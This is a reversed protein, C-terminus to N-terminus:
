ASVRIHQPPLGAQHRQYIQTYAAELHRAFLATDFLPTTLRNRALKARIESLRQANTALEVALAEYAEQTDTVLEPLGIAKLVSAAVRGAFSEGIRTLVPLGTWLADSATTGANYPLTDLFLDAARYRALYEPAPLRAGFVLRNADVGRAAAEKRLNVAALPHDAYLLLVSGPVRKLIRMWGDFTAPTIKFNNNFCCYVFGEQPLGLEARTYAKDAIRRKSDNAQYSPLCVIKEAYHKQLEEPIITPDAILYDMYPAGMTGLYGIYSAQVPAAQLAFIGTRSDQTYGGLDIAIDLELTRALQAVALDNQDSVDIFRDFATAVRKQMADGDDRFFSFAYLEFKSKDHREYLEATLFSVAHSRFDASFYGVRIRDHAPRRPIEPLEHHAPFKERAWIEAARRHLRPSDHMAHVAFPTATTESRDVRLALEAFDADIGSWDCIQMKTLLRTGYLFPYDPQLALASDYSALAEPMRKLNTLANGLNNYAQAHNPKLTIARGYNACAAEERKLEHLVKGCNYYAEAYDPKLAIALGYSELAAAHRMLQLLANGRNNYADFYDPKLATALRYSALAADPRQLELLANGRNYHADAYDPKLAITREYSELAAASRGLQALVIGRNNAADVSDPKLALAREYSDRAAAFGELDFLANGRNICAEAYDPRVALARAYSALAAEPQQLARLAVGRGNHAEAYDPMLALAREYSGLALQPLKLGRLATALNFHADAYYPNLEIAREYSNRAAAAQGLERLALGRGNCAAAYDPQLALARAYSHLAADHRGLECLVNGLNNYPEAVEPQLEIARQYRPLAAQPNGLARLVVGLNNHVDAHNPNVAVARSLLAVAEGARQTQAAVIGLLYLADFYKPQVYLIM